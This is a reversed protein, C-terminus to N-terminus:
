DNNRGKLLSLLAKKIKGKLYKILSPNFLNRANIEEYVVNPMIIQPHILNLDIEFRPKNALNSRKDSTHTADCGFGINSIMNKTPIISLGNNIWSIFYWQYDWTDILENAVMRFNGLWFERLYLGFGMNKIYNFKIFLPLYLLAPEYHRWRSAWTAWGWVHNHKSFYYSEENIVDQEVLTSTGSVHWIRNDTEYKNLMAECFWFFSQAPLCDDELIIGHREQEFFWTIAGSVAYKCGLNKERFLTRVDCPWDVATAIARVKAVRDAEGERGERPGDAAVYLRPPKAKRIAEFVRATTDPRNFILLLVATNLPESSNFIYTM